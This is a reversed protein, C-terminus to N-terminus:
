IIDLYKCILMQIVVLIGLMIGSIMLVFFNSYGIINTNFIIVKIILIGLFSSLFIVSINIIIKRLDIRIIKNLKIILLITMSIASITTAIVLGYVGLKNILILNFLINILAGIISNIMPTKTDKLSFFAKNVLDKIGYFIMTPMMLFLINATEKVNEESFAGRQYVFSVIEERLLMMYLTVPIMIICMFNISKILKNKFGEHDNQTIKNCLQTFCVTTIGMGIVTYALLNLKNAYNMLSVTGMDLKSALMRDVIMNIQSISTGMLVPLVMWSIQYIEPTLCKFSIRINYGKKLFHPLQILVQLLNGILIAIALGILGYKSYFMLLYAILVLNFVLDISAPIAYIDYSNLVAKLINYLSMFIFSCFVIRTTKITLELQQNSLTEFFGPAFVYVIEKAFFIGIIMIISSIMILITTINTIFKRAKLIDENKLQVFFPILTSGISGSIAAFIIAVLNTIYFYIDAEVSVGMNSAIAMDRLLGTAKSLLTIIMIIVSSKIILNTRM